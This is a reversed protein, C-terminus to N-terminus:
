GVIGAACFIKKDICGVYGYNSCWNLNITTNSAKGSSKYIRGLIGACYDGRVQGYNDCNVINYTQNGHLAQVFGVIAGATDGVISGLNSCKVIDINGGSDIKGVIGGCWDYDDLAIFGTKERNSALNATNSCNSVVTNKCGSEIQAVIGGVATKNGGPVEFTQSSICSDVINNGSVLHGVIGGMSALKNEKNSVELSGTAQVNIISTDTAYDVVGAVSGKTAKFNANLKFNKITANKTYGFLAVNSNDTLM